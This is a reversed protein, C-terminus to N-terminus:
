PAHIHTVVRIELPVTIASVGLWLAWLLNTLRSRVCTLWCIVDDLSLLLPLMWFFWGPMSVYLSYCRILIEGSHWSSMYLWGTFRSSCVIYMMDFSDFSQSVIFRCTVVSCGIGHMLWFFGLGFAIDFIQQVQLLLIAQSTPFFPPLDQPSALILYAIGVPFSWSMILLLM